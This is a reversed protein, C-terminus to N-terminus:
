DIQVEEGASVGRSNTVQCSLQFHAAEALVHFEKKVLKGKKPLEVKVKKKGTILFIKESDNLSAIFTEHGTQDYAFLEVLPPLTGDVSDSATAQILFEKAQSGNTDTPLLSCSVIPPETPTPTPTPALVTPQATGRTTLATIVEESVGADTLHILSQTDLNYGGPAADIKALM